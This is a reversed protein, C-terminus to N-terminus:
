LLTHFSSDITWHNLNNAKANKVFLLKVHQCLNDNTYVYVYCTSPSTLWTFSYRQLTKSQMCYNHRPFQSNDNMNELINSNCVYPIICNFNTLRIQNERYIKTFFSYPLSLSSSTHDLAQQYLSYVICIKRSAATSTPLLLM